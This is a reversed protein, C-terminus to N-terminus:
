VDEEDSDNMFSGEGGGVDMYGSSSNGGANDYQPEAQVDMYGSAGGAPAGAVDMYGSTQGSEVGGAVPAGGQGATSYSTDYMPNEFSQVGGKVASGGGKRTFMFAAVGIGLLLIVVVVIIIITTSGGSKKDQSFKSAIAASIAACADGSFASKVDECENSNNSAEECVQASGDRFTAKMTEELTFGVRIMHCMIKDQDRRESLGESEAVAELVKTYDCDDGDDSILQDDDLTNAACLAKSDM